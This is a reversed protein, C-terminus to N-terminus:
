IFGKRLNMVLEELMAGAAEVINAQNDSMSENIKTVSGDLKCVSYGGGGGGM